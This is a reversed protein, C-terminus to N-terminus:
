TNEKLTIWDATWETAGGYPGRYRLDAEITVPDFQIRSALGALKPDVFFKTTVLAPEGNQMQCILHFNTKEASHAAHKYKIAHLQLTHTQVICRDTVDPLRPRKKVPVLNRYREFFATAQLHQKYVHLALHIAPGDYDAYPWMPASPDSAFADIAKKIQSSTGAGWRWSNNNKADYMSANGV